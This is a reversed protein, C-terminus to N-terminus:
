FEYLLGATPRRQSPRKPRWCLEATKHFKFNANKLFFYFFTHKAFSTYYDPVRSRGPCDSQVGLYSRQRTSNSIQMNKSFIFFIHKKCFEDLLRASPQTRSPRKPRWFLEATKHFKFNVGEIFCRPNMNIRLLSINLPTNFLLLCVILVM